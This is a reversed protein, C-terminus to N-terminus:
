LSPKVYSSSVHNMTFRPLYKVLTQYRLSFHVRSILSRGSRANGTRFICTQKFLPDMEM